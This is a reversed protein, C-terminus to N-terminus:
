VILAETTPHGDIADLLARASRLLSDGPDTIPDFHAITDVIEARAQDAHGRQLLLRSLRYRAFLTGKSKPGTAVTLVSIVERLKSTLDADRRAAIDIGIRASRTLVTEIHSAGLTEVQIPYLSEIESVAEDWRALNALCVARLYRTALTHPHDVGKVEAKVPAFDDIELLADAYRRLDILV